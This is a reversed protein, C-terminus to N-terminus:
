KIFINRIKKIMWEGNYKKYIKGFWLEMMDRDDDINKVIVM